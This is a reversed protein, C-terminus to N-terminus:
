GRRHAREFWERRLDEVLLVEDCARQGHPPDVVGIVAGLGLGGALSQREVFKQAQLRDEDQALPRVLTLRAADRMLDAIAASREHVLHEFTERELESGRLALRDFGHLGVHGAPLRHM